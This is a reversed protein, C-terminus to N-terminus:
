TTQNESANAERKGIRKNFFYIIIGLGVIALGVFSEIPKAM